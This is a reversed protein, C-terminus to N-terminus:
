EKGIFVEITAKKSVDAMIADHLEVKCMLVVDDKIKEFDSGPGKKRESVLLVHMGVGDSIVDSMSNEPLAFAAKSLVEDLPYKRSVLGLEGGDKANPSQSYKRAADAFSIKGAAIQDRLNLLQQRATQRDADSANPAIRLMIHSVHVLNGDFFDKNVEYCRKLAAETLRPAVYLEWQMMLRLGFRVQAETQGSEKLYEAWTHSAKEIQRKLEAMRKELDADEVKPGNARLFQEMLKSNVLLTLAQSQIEKKQQETPEVKSPPRTAIIADIDAFTIAEGNVKAAIKAAQAHAQGSSLLLGAGVLVALAWHHAKM